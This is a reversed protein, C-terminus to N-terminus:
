YFFESAFDNTLLLQAMKKTFKQLNLNKEIPMPLM